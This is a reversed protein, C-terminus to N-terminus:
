PSPRTMTCCDELGARVRKAKPLHALQINMVQWPVLKCIKGYLESDPAVFISAQVKRALAEEAEALLPKWQSEQRNVGVYWATNTYYSENVTMTGFDEQEVVRWFARGIADGLDPPYCASSATNSGAVTEHEHARDCQLNWSRWSPPTHPWSAFESRPLGNKGTLGFMCLCAATEYWKSGLRM